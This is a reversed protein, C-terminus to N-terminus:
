LLMVTRSAPQEDLPANLVYISRKLRTAAPMPIPTALRKAREVEWAYIASTVGVCCCARM